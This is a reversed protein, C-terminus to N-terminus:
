KKKTDRGKLNLVSDNVGDTLLVSDRRIEKVTYGGLEEGIRYVEGNVIATPTTPDFTIGELYFKSEKLEQVPKEKSSLIDRKLSVSATKAKMMGGEPNDSLLCSVLLRVPSGGLEVSKGKAELIEMEEVKLFPSMTELSAVYKVADQYNSYFKVELFIRSYGQDKVINQKVGELKVESALRTFEGVLQSMNFRSPIQKELAAIQEEQAKAEAAISDISGAVKQDQPTKSGLDNLQAQSRKIQTKYLAIKKHIPQQVAKAYIGFFLFGGLALIAMRERPKLKLLDM